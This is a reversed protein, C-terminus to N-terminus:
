SQEKEWAALIESPRMDLGAGLGILTKITLNSNACTEIKTINSPLVGSKKSLENLGLGKGERLTQITGGLTGAIPERKTRGLKRLRSVEAEAEKLKEEITM